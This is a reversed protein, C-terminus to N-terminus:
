RFAARNARVFACLREILEKEANEYYYEDEDEFDIGKEDMKDLRSQLKGLEKPPNAKPFKGKVCGLLAICKEAGLLGLANELAGMRDGHYYLYHGFGGSNVETMMLDADYVVREKENLSELAEGEASLEGLHVSLASLLEDDSLAMIADIQMTRQDPAIPMSPENFRISKPVKGDVLRRYKMWVASLGRNDIAEEYNDVTETCLKKLYAIGREIDNRETYYEALRLYLTVEDINPQGEALKLLEIGKDYQGQEIFQEGHLVALVYNGDFEPIDSCKKM